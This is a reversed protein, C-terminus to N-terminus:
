SNPIIFLKHLRKRVWNVLNADDEEESILGMKRLQEQRQALEEQHKSLQQIIVEVLDSQEQLLQNFGKKYIAFFLTKELTKLSATRPLGLILSIEGFFEGASM